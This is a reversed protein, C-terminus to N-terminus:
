KSGLLATAGGNEVPRGFQARDGAKRGERFADAGGKM